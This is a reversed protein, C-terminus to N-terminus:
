RKKAYLRYALYGVKALQRLKGLLPQGHFISIRKGNFRSPVFRRTRIDIVPKIYLRGIYPDSMLPSYYICNEFYYHTVQSFRTRTRDRIPSGGHFLNAAWILAEGKRLTLEKRELGQAAIFSEVFAEYHGYHEPQPTSFALAGSRGTDYLEYIPLKHSGVYYHLPGNDTDVDELAVWVGCMYRPPYSHFHITDSHTKQETGVPFNLTQFPIPERQYFLRLYYLVKEAIAIQRFSEEVLWADMIRAHQLSGDPAYCLQRIAQAARDLVAPPLDTHLTFYGDQAFRRVAQEDSLSLRLREIEASFLPEPLEVLPINLSMSAVNPHM